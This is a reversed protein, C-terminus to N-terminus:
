VIRCADLVALTFYAVDSEHKGVTGHESVKPHQISLDILRDKIISMLEGIQLDDGYTTFVITIVWGATHHARSNTVTASVLDYTMGQKRTNIDLWENLERAQTRPFFPMFGEVPLTVELAHIRTLGIM